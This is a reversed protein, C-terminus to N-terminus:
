QIVKIDVSDYSGKQDTVTITYHGTKQFRHQIAQRLNAIRALKGNIIWYLKGQGGLADLVIVPLHSGLGSRRFVSNQRLGIIKLTGRSQDPLIHCHPDAKPKRAKRLIETTLWPELADPWRALTLKKRQNVNCNADVLLGTKPNIWYEVQQSGWTKRDVDPLTPPVSNNLIYANRKQHCLHKQKDNLITGLPWCITVKKVNNPMSYDTNSQQRNPLSDVVDFLIPAATIAGYHGPMPTGDPRGVWVGITYKATVGIAWADRYGYSTGTKWAINRANSWKLYQEPIGPRSHDELIRRIIWASGADLLRRQNLEQSEYFRPKASMGNRALASYAGVLSELSTGVGGLIVSLNAKAHNPFSLNLGGNELRAVFKNPEYHHLVQVAPINLSQQLAYRVSVPGNYNSSFNTPKYGAYEVPADSLLSESHILGDEIALGYLFPKLTSGPSRTARVMDIHGFRADNTFDASGVYARTKMNSNEVVLIAISTKKPLLGLYSNLREEVSWQISSNITTKLIGSKVAKGKLRRALLPAMIEQKYIHDNVVEIKAQQATQKSWVSFQVLRDIVKNRARLARAPHLDPRFRTPSQPLVALLAAEAHSLEKSPKGLYARSAAEVGEYVGGFPAYNLYHTLIRKKDWHWELQLARFIQRMKGPITRTHPEIIRAVQMTITSGGSIIRGNSIRQWAARLLAGPNVGPHSYFYRDEYNLLAELYHPSVQKLSIPYRWVGKDNTFSRLPTGDEAVIIASYQNQKKDLPIPYFKDLCLFVLVFFLLVYLLIKATAFLGDLTLLKFHNFQRLFLISPHHLKFM